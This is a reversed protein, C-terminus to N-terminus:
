DGDSEEFGFKKLKEHTSFNIATTHVVKGNQDIIVAKIQFKSPKSYFYCNYCVQQTSLDIGLFGDKM